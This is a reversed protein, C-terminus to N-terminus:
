ITDFNAAVNLELVSFYRSFKDQVQKLLQKFTEEGFISEVTKKSLPSLAKRDTKQYVGGVYFKANNLPALYIRCYLGSNNDVILIDRKSWHPPFDYFSFRAKNVEPFRM